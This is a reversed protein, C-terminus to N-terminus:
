IKKERTKKKKTKNKKRKERKTKNIENNLSKKEEELICIKYVVVYM